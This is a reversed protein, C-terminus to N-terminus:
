ASAAKREPEQFQHVAKGGRCAFCGAKRHFSLGHGCKQCRDPSM